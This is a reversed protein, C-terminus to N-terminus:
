QHVDLLLRTENCGNIDMQWIGIDQTITTGTIETWIYRTFILKKGDASIGLDYYFNEDSHYERLKVVSKNALDLRFIASLDSNEQFQSQWFVYSNDPSFAPDGPSSGKIPIQAVLENDGRYIFLTYNLYTTDDYKWEAWLSGDQSYYRSPSAWAKGWFMPPATGNTDVVVWKTGDYVVKSWINVRNITNSVFSLTDGAPNWYGPDGSAFVQHGSGDTKVVNLGGSAYAIWGQRSLQIDRLSWPNCDIVKAGQMTTLDFRWIERRMSPVGISANYHEL